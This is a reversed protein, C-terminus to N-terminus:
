PLPSESGQGGEGTMWSVTGASKGHPPNVPAPLPSFRDFLGTAVLLMLPAVAQGVYCASSFVFAGAATGELVARPTLFGHMAGVMTRPGGMLALMGVGVAATTVLCGMGGVETETFPSALQDFVPPMRPTQAQAPQLTTLAFLGAVFASFLSRASPM